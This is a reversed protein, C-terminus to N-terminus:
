VVRFEGNSIDVCPIALGDLGRWFRFIVDRRQPFRLQIVVEQGVRLIVLRQFQGHKIVAFPEQVVNRCGGL